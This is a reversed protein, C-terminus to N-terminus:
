KTVKDLILIGLAIAGAAYGWLAAMGGGRGDSRAMWKDQLDMKDNLTQMSKEHEVRPIFTRERDTMASRWENASQRWDKAGDEAKTVAKDAAALAAQVAKEQAVLAAQIAKDQAVALQSWRTDQDSIVREIHIRLSELTWTEPPSETM